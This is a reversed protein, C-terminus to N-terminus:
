AAELEVRFKLGSQDLQGQLALKVFRKESYGLARAFRAARESSVSKRGKEIDNLHSKSISLRKAFEPQTMAEGLRIAEILSGLTVPGGTASELLKMAASKKRNNETSM